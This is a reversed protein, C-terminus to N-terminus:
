PRDRGTGVHADDAHVGEFLDVGGVLGAGVAVLGEGLAERDHQGARGHVQEDAQHQEDHDEGPEARGTGSWHCTLRTSSPDAAM